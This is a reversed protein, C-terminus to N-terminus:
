RIFDSVRMGPAKWPADGPRWDDEKDYFRARANAIDRHCEAAAAMEKMECYTEWPVWAVPLDMVEFQGAKERTKQLREYEEADYPIDGMDMDAMTNYCINYILEFNHQNRMTSFPYLKKCSVVTVGNERCLALQEDRKAKSRPYCCKEEGTKKSIYRLEYRAERNVM